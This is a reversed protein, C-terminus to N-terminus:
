ATKKKKSYKSNLEEVGNGTILAKIAYYDIGLDLLSAVKDKIPEIAKQEETSLLQTSAINKAGTLGREEKLQKSSKGLVARYVLDNFGSYRFEKTAREKGYHNTVATNLRNSILKGNEWRIDRELLEQKMNFFQKVLNVKFEVVQPTNNLLTILFTAQNMSLMYRKTPRGGKSSSVKPKANEFHLVGFQEIESKHNRILNKVAKLQNGSCEAIVEDTTYLDARVTADTLFVLDKNEM